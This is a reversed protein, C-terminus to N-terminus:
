DILVVEFESLVLSRRSGGDIFKALTTLVSAQKSLPRKRRATSDAVAVRLVKVLSQNLTVHQADLDHKVRRQSWQLSYLHVTTTGRM